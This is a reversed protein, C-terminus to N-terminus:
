DIIPTAKFIVFKVLKTASDLNAHASSKGVSTVLTKRFSRKCSIRLIASRGGTRHVMCSLSLSSHLRWDYVLVPFGDDM